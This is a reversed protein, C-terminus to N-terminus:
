VDANAADNMPLFVTKDVGLLAALRSRFQSMSFEQEFALASSVIAQKRVEDDTLLQNLKELIDDIENSFCGLGIPYRELFHTVSSNRPGHYLIPVQASVYTSLKTPFSMQAALSFDAEMKYPLYLLDCRMLLEIVEHQPRWGLFTIDTPSKSALRLGNGIVLIRIKRGGIRWKVSELAGILRQFENSAYLTGAFGIVFSDNDRDYPPDAVASNSIGARITITDTYQKYVQAMEDSMVACIRSKQLTTYFDKLLAKHSLRLVDFRDAHIMYEPPDWVLTVLTLSTRRAIESAVVIGTRGHLTILLIDPKQIDIFELIESAIMSASIRSWIPFTVRQIPHSRVPPLQPLSWSSSAYEYTRNNITTESIITLSLKESPICDCIDRIWIEAVSGNGPPVVSIVM